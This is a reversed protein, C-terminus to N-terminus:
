SKNSRKENELAKETIAHYLSVARGYMPELDPRKHVLRQVEAADRMLRELYDLDLESLTDGGDVRAQLDLLRPLRIKEFRELLAYVIGDDKDTM